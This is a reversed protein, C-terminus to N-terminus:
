LNVFQDGERVDAMPVTEAACTAPDIRVGLDMEPNDVRVWGGGIRVDTEMNTTSYFSDPFVGSMAAAVYRADAPQCPVAGHSLIEGLISDLLEQTPASVRLVSVSPDDNTRGVDFTISEFEGGMAIIADMVQSMIGSDILHGEIRVDEYVARQM